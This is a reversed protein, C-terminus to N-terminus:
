KKALAQQHLGKANALEKVMEKFWWGRTVVIVALLGGIGYLVQAMLPSSMREPTGIVQHMGYGFGAVILVMGLLTGGLILAFSLFFHSVYEAIRDLNM